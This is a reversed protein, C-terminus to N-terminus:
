RHSSRRPDAAFLNKMGRAVGKGRAAERCRRKRVDGRAQADRRRRDQPVEGRFLLKERRRHARAVDGDRREHFLERASGARVVRADHQAAEGLLKDREDARDDAGRDRHLHMERRPLRREDNGEVRM